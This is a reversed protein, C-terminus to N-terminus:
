IPRRLLAATQLLTKPDIEGSYRYPIPVVGAVTVTGAIRYQLPESKLLLTPLMGALTSASGTVSVEVQEEGFAPIQRDLKGGGAAIETGELSLTYTMAKIPLMRDNPKRIRLGVLFSQEKLTIQQPKLSTLMVEPALWPQTLGACGVSTLLMVALTWVTVSGMASVPVRRLRSHTIPIM